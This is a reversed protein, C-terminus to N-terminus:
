LTARGVIVIESREAAVVVDHTVVRRPLQESKGIAIMMPDTRESM